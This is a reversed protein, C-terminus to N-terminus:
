HRVGLRATMVGRVLVRDDDILDPKQPGLKGSHACIFPPDFRRLVAEVHGTSWDTILAYVIDGAKARATTNILLIDGPVIGVLDLAWSKMVWAEISNNRGRIAAVADHVYDPWPTPDRDLKIAEPESAGAQRRQGPMVNIPIGSFDSVADLTRQSIGITGSRDNLYRTLTSAALGSRLALDSASLNLHRAVARLWEKTSQQMMAPVSFQASQLM